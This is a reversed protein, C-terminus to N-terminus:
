YAGNLAGESLIPQGSGGNVINGTQNDVAQVGYPTMLQNYVVPQITEPIFRVSGDCFALNVGGTHNSSPRSYNWNGASGLGKNKNIVLTSADGWLVAMGYELKIQNAWAANATRWTTADVNEGLLVTLSTGDHKSVYDLTTTIGATTGSAAYKETFAIGNAKYDYPSSSARADPQGANIGYSLAGEGGAPQDDSPCLLVDIQLLPISGGAMVNTMWQEYVDPRQVKLVDTVWNTPVPGITDALRPFRDKNTVHISISQALEKMHNACTTRHAAARAAGLAPLLLAMLVGIITIVVLLEVLTFGRKKGGMHRVGGSDSELYSDGGVRGLEIM